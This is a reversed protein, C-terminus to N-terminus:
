TKSAERFQKVGLFPGLSPRLAILTRATSITTVRAFRTGIYFFSNHENTGKLAQHRAHWRHIFPVTRHIFPGRIRRFETRTYYVLGHLLLDPPILFAAEGGNM